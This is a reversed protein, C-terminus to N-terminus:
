EVRNEKEKEIERMKISTLNASIPKLAGIHQEIHKPFVDIARPEEHASLMSSHISLNWPLDIVYVPGSEAGRIISPLWFVTTPSFAWSLAISEGTALLWFCSKWREGDVEAFNFAYLYKSFAENNSECLHEPFKKKLIHLSLFDCYIM